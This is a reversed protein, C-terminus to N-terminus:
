TRSIRAVALAGVELLHDLGAHAGSAARELWSGGILRPAYLGEAYCCLATNRQLEMGSILPAVVDM